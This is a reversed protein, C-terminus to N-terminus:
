ESAKSDESYESDDDSDYDDDDLDDSDDIVSATVADYDEEDERRRDEDEIRREEGMREARGAPTEKEIDEQTMHDANLIMVRMIQESLQVAKEIDRIKPGDCKFYTLIYTGRSKKQIDYALRREDWKRISIIDADSRKLVTEISKITGNWDAAALATDVLFMGEYQKKTVTAM